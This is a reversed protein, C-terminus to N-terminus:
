IFSGSGPLTAGPNVKKKQRIDINPGWCMVTSSWICSEGSDYHTEGSFQYQIMWEQPCVIGMQLGADCLKRIQPAIEARFNWNRVAIQSPSRSPCFNVPAHVVWVVGVLLVAFKEIEIGFTKNNGASVVTSGYKCKLRAAGREVEGWKRATCMLSGNLAISLHEM